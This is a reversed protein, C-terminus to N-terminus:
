RQITFAYLSPLHDYHGESCKTCMLLAFKEVSEVRKKDRLLFPSWMASAHELHQLVLSKHLQLLSTCAAHNYYEALPQGNLLLPTSPVTLKEM